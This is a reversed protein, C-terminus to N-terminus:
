AATRLFRERYRGVLLFLALEVVVAVVVIEADLYGLTVNVGALAVLLGVRAAATGVRDRGFLLAGAAVLLLVGVVAEGVSTVLLIGPHNAPTYTADNLAVQVDPDSSLLALFIVLGLLSVLGLLACGLILM